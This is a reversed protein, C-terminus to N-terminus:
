EVSIMWGQILKIVFGAKVTYDPAEGACTYCQLVTVCYLSRRTGSRVVLGGSQGLSSLFIYSFSIKGKSDWIKNIIEKKIYNKEKM